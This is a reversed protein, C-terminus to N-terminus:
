FPCRGISKWIWNVVNGHSTWCVGETTCSRWGANSKPWLQRPSHCILCFIPFELRVFLISYRKSCGKQLSQAQFRSFWRIHNREALGIFKPWVQPSGDLMRADVEEGRASLNPERQGYGRQISHTVSLADRFSENTRHLSGSQQLLIWILVKM